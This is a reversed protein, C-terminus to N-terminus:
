RSGRQRPDTVEQLAEGILNYALVTLFILIGPFLTLWWMALNQHGNHLISGWSIASSSTAIGLFSLSSELLISAAISFTIPVLVPALANPLIHRFIIRFRSAGLSRAAAVYESQKLKIFEGRMLRAIKPWSTLGIIVMVHWISPNEIVAVFALIMILTPVCIVVELMRSIIIDIWGGFFGAFAGLTIGILAALGTSVFGVLLATRTGHVLM